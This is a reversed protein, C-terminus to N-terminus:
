KTRTICCAQVLTNTPLGFLTPNDQFLREFTIYAGGITGAPTGLYSVRVQPIVFARLRTEEVVAANVCAGNLARLCKEAPPAPPVAVVRAQASPRAAARKVLQADASCVLWASMIAILAGITTLKRSDM